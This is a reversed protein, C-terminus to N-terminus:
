REGCIYKSIDPAGAIPFQLVPLKKTRRRSTDVIVPQDSAEPVATPTSIPKEM